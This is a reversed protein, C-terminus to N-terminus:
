QVWHLNRPPGIGNVRAMTGFTAYPHGASLSLGGSAYARSYYKLRVSYLFSGIIWRITFKGPYIDGLDSEIVPNDVLSSDVQCELDETLSDTIDSLFFNRVSDSSLNNVIVIVTDYSVERSWSINASDPFVFGDDAFLQSNLLGAIALALLLQLICVRPLDKRSISVTFVKLCRKRAYHKLREAWLISYQSKM